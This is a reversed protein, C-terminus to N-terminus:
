TGVPFVDVFLPHDAGAILGEGTKEWKSGVGGLSRWIRPNNKCPNHSNVKGTLVQLIPEWHINKQTTLNVGRKNAAM